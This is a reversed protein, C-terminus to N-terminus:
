RDGLPHDPLGEAQSTGGEHTGGEYTDGQSLEIPKESTATPPTDDEGGGCGATLLRALLAGVIIRM